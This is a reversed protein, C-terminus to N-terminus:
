AQRGAGVMACWDEFLPRLALEDAHISFARDVSAIWAHTWTEEPWADIAAMIEAAHEVGRYTTGADGVSARLDSLDPVLVHAGTAMAEAIANSMGIRTALERGSPGATHVYLGAQAVLPVIDERPVDFMLEVRSDIQRRIDRREHAHPEIHAGSIVALVFRHDPMRQALDVFFLIEENPLAASRHIVLRRDKPAYPRFLTSDFVMPVVRLRPDARDPTPLHQSFAYVARVWPRELLGRVDDPTVGVGHLHITVPLGLGALAREPIAGVNLGHIHIVDPQARRVAGALSDDHMPVSAPAPSPLETEGWVEVHVGWRLMCRIETEVYTNDLRPDPWLAYLVRPRRKTTAAPYWKRKIALFDPGFPRTATIRNADCVRYRAALVLLARAPAHETYRLILDWDVLRKLQEDFDGYREILSKRHVVVNLDIFNSALLRDRDFPMWLLRTGELQHADTVLVGYILNVAPDAAFANVAAALFDPYWVNDSDLYAILSGRALKLGQNRAGSVGEAPSEVYRIRGDVLYPAVKAATDDSSGNDIIILEWDPFHQAKVSTIADSIVHARNRTPLIVSIVPSPTDNIRQEVAPPRTGPTGTVLSELTAVRLRRESREAELHAAIEAIRASLEGSTRGLAAEIRAVDATLAARLTEDDARRTAVGAWLEAILTQRANAEDQIQNQRATVEGQIQAQRANAEDQVHNQRANAEDQIQAQLASATDGLEARWVMREAALEHRIPRLAANRARRLVPRLDIGIWALTDLMRRAM